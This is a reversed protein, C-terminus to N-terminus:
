SGLLLSRLINIPPLLTYGDSSSLDSRENLTQVEVSYTQAPNSNPPHPLPLAEKKRTSEQLIQIKIM